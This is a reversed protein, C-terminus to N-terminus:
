CRRYFRAVVLRLIERTLIRYLCSRTKRKEIQPEEALKHYCYRAISAIYGGYAAKRANTFFSSGYVLISHASSSVIKWVIAIFSISLCLSLSLLPLLLFLSLYIAAYITM